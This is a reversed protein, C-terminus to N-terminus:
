EAARGESPEFEMYSRPQFRYDASALDDSGSIDFTAGTRCLWGPFRAPLEVVAGDEPTLGPVWVRLGAGDIDLVAGFLNVNGDHDPVGGVTPAYRPVGEPAVEGGFASDLSRRLHDPIGYASEILADVAAALGSIEATGAAAHLRRGADALVGWIPGDRPVPFRRMLKIDITRKPEYTDVWASALRSGLLALLAFLHDTVSDDRPIVMRLSERPIVGENDLGVKLRWPNAPSRVGSFLIKHQQLRHGRERGARHFDDPYRIRRLTSRDPSAYATLDGAKSLMWFNGARGTEKGPEPVPSTEVYSIDGLKPLKDLSDRIVDFPGRMLAQSRDDIAPQLWQEDALYNQFFRQLNKSRVRRYVWPRARTEHVQAFVVCPALAASEFTGEPLRWVEFLSAQATLWERSERAVASQLWSAPLVAAVFGGPACLEVMRQLFLVSEEVRRGQVSRRGRWPPNSVVISPSAPPAGAHLADRQEVHWHNGFPLSHLLLSLGAIETAFLDVDYGLLHAVLYGHREGAAVRVPLLQALRDHASILLTGSGCAPDLVVRQEPALEEVPLTAVIRDALEPPTYYIGHEVRAAGTVVANEYVRSVVAPDLGRYNVGRGLIEVLEHLRAAQKDSLHTLGGFYEPFKAQAAGFVGIGDVDLEFKDRIVLAALTRVVRRAADQWHAVTGESEDFQTLMAEDVLSSLMDSSGQRAQALLKADVPFLTLQRGHKAAYLADPGAVSAFRGALQRAEAVPGEGIREDGTEAAAVRWLELRGDTKLLALPAALARAADLALSAQWGAEPVVQGAITLTTMDLPAPRGFAAVDLRELSGATPVPFELRVLDQNYGAAVLFNLLPRRDPAVHDFSIM